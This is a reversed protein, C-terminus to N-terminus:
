ENEKSAERELMAEFTEVADEPAFVMMIRHFDDDSIAMHNKDYSLYSFELLASVLLNFEKM